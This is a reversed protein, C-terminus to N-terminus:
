LLRDGPGTEAEGWAFLQNFFCELCLVFRWCGQALVSLAWDKLVLNHVIADQLQNDTKAVCFVM